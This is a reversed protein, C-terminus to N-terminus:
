AIRPGVADRATVRVWWLSLRRPTRHPNRSRAQAATRSDAAARLLDNIHEHALTATWTPQYSTTTM